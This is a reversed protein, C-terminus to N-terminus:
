RGENDIELHLDLYSASRVTDTTDQIPTVRPIGIASCSGIARGYCGLEDATKLVYPEHQEIM